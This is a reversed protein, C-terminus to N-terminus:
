ALEQALWQAVTRGMRLKRQHIPASNNADVTM